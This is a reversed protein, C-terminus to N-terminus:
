AVPTQEVQATEVEKKPKRAPAQELSMCFVRVGAGNPDNPAANVGRLTVGYMEEIKPNARSINGNFNKSIVGAVHFSPIFNEDPNDSHMNDYKLKAIVSFPYKEPRATPTKRVPAKPKYKVYAIGTQVAIAADGITVTEIVAPTADSGIKVDIEGVESQGGDAVQAIPAPAPAPAPAPVAVPAPTEAVPAPADNFQPAATEALPPQPQAPFAAHFADVTATETATAPYTGETTGKKRKDVKILGADKLATIEPCDSVDTAAGAATNAIIQQLVALMWTTNLTSM